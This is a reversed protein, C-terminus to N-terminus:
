MTLERIGASTGHPAQLRHFAREAIRDRILDCRLVIEPIGAPVAAQDALPVQEHDREPM